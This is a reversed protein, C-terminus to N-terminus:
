DPCVLVPWAGSIESVHGGKRSVYHYWEGDDDGDTIKIVHGIFQSKGDIIFFLM